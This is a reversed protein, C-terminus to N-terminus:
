TWPTVVTIAFLAQAAYYTPLGGVRNALARVVFRNRAVLVDSIAFLVAAMPIRPDQLTGSTGFSAVVMVSIIGVYVAVPIRMREPTHPGLWRLIAGATLAMAIGSLAVAALDMPSRAFFGATYLAHALAFSALGALLPREGTFSLALDGFWSIVLGAAIFMAYGSFAPAGTFVIAIVATSAGIKFLRSWLVSQDTLLGSALGAVIAVVTLVATM